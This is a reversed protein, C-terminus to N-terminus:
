TSTATLTTTTTLTVAVAVAVFQRSPARALLGLYSVV